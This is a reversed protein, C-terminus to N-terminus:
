QTEDARISAQHSQWEEILNNRDTALVTEARKALHEPWNLSRTVAQKRDKEVLAAAHNFLLVSEQTYELSLRRKEEPIAEDEGILTVLAIFPKFVVAYARQYQRLISDRIIASKPVMNAVIEDISSTKLIDGAPEPHRGWIVSQVARSLKGELTAPPFWHKMWASIPSGDKRIRSGYQFNRATMTMLKLRM